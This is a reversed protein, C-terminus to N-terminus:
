SGPGAVATGVLSRGAGRRFAPGPMPRGGAPQVVALVLRGATTALALGDGSAVLHGVRDGPENPATAAEHVALRGRATDLYTGPWPRLARVRRELEAAPRAPDLRGDARRFPRTLTASTENQAVAATTGAIWGPLTEGLLAAGVAAAAAELEPTTEDGDLPWRRTAVVPGTDLGADMAMITVGAEPDGALITAPVPTAGRHRPLISPHVNLIGLPPVALLEPPVIRGYDALVGLDADLAALAAVVSPERLREPRLLPLGRGLALAGVPTSVPTAHRGAPRDPTSVVAVVSVVPDALLAELIPVAFSGSGFFVVRAPVHGPGSAATARDTM